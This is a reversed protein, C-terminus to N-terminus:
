QVTPHVPSIMRIKGKAREKEQGKRKNKGM